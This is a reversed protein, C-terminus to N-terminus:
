QIKVLSWIFSRGGASKLQKERKAASTKDFYEEKYLIIWPRFNITWGKQSLENRSRFREEINSTMGIYIKDYPKSYLVYVTYM